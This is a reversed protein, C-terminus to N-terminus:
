DLMPHVAPNWDLFVSFCVWMWFFLFITGWLLFLWQKLKIKVQFFILEFGDVNAQWFCVHKVSHATGSSSPIYRFQLTHVQVPPYTVSSSPIHRFQLTHVQVPPYTGSSSPIHRFQLTHVQVPPYTGSSSPIHRFQLTHAQVPPYTGTNSPIYM